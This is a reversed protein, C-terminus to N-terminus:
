LANEVVSINNTTIKNNLNTLMGMKRDNGM